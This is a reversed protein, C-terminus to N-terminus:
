REKLAHSSSFSLGMQVRGSVVDGDPKDAGRAVLVLQRGDLRREAAISFRGRFERLDIEETGSWRGHEYAHDAIESDIRAHAPVFGPGESWIVRLATGSRPHDGKMLGLVWAGHARSVARGAVEVSVEYEDSLRFLSSPDPPSAFVARPPLLLAAAFHDCFREEEESPPTTRVAPRTSRDFFFSHGIEHAIRFRNRRRQLEWSKRGGSPTETDVVVSFSGNLEAVLMADFSRGEASFPRRRVSFGGLACVARLDCWGRDAFDTGLVAARTECALEEAQDVSPVAELQRIPWSAM